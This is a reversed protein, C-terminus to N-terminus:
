NSVQLKGPPKVGRPVTVNKEVDTQAEMAQAVGFTMAIEDIKESYRQRLQVLDDQLQAKRESQVNDSSEWRARLIIEFRLDALESKRATLDTPDVVASPVIASLSSNREITEDLIPISL